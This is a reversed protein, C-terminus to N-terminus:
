QYIELITEKKGTYKLKYRTFYLDDGCENALEFLFFLPFFFPSHNAEEKM